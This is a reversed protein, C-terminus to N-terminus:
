QCLAEIYMYYSYIKRLPPQHVIRLNKMLKAVNEDTEVSCAADQLRFYREAPASCKQNYEALSRMPKKRSNKQAIESKWAWVAPLICMKYVAASPQRNKQINLFLIFLPNECM